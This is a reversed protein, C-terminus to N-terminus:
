TPPVDFITDILRNIESDTRYAQLLPGCTAAISLPPTRDVVCAQLLRRMESEDGLGVNIALRGFPAIYEGRKEREDFEALLRRADATRGAKAYALGALGQLYGRDANTAAGWRVADLFAELRDPHGSKRANM